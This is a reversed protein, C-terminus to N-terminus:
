RTRSIIFRGQHKVSCHPREQLPYKLTDNIPQGVWPHLDIFLLGIQAQEVIPVCVRNWNHQIILNSALVIKCGLGLYSIITRQTKGPNSALICQVSCKLHLSEDFHLNVFFSSNLIQHFNLTVFKQFDRASAAKHFAYLALFSICLISLYNNMKFIIKGLFFQLCNRYLVSKFVLWSRSIIEIILLYIILSPQIM